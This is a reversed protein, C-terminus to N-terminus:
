AEGAPRSGFGALESAVVKRFDARELHHEEAYQAQLGPLSSLLSVQQATIGLLVFEGGVKVLAVGAKGGPGLPSYSLPEVLFRRALPAFSRARLYRLLFIAVGVFAALALSLPIWSWASTPGSAVRDASGSLTLPLQESAIPGAVANGPVQASATPCSIALWLLLTLTTRM